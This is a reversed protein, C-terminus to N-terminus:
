PTNNPSTFLGKIAKGVLWLLALGLAAGGCKWLLIYLAYGGTYIITWLLYALVYVALGVIVVVASIAIAGVLVSVITGAMGSLGLLNKIKEVM